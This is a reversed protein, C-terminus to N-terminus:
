SGEYVGSVVFHMGVALSGSVIACQATSGIVQCFVGAGAVATERGAGGASTSATVPTTFNFGTGVCTGISSISVDLQWAVTKGNQQFHASNTTWTGSGSACSIAPSYSPWAQQNNSQFSVQYNTGDSTIRAAQGPYIKLSSAGNITSITPAVTVIGAATTSNNQINTFWGSQFASAAGAQAISYAQAAANTATILKARDSDAIAYSTGSQPNVLEAAWITGSTTIASGPASATITTTVGNGPTLGTVTGTGASVNCGFLHTTTNYTLANACNVLPTAQVAASGGTPNGLLNDAAIPPIAAFNLAQYTGDGRLFTTINNPWAPLAGPLSATALNLMATLQAQTCAIPTGGAVSCLATNAGITPFQGLAVQGAINSFSPQSQHAVGSQSISDVWSNLLPAIPQIAPGSLTQACAISVSSVYFLSAFIASILSNNM